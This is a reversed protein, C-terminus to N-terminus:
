DDISKADLPPFRAIGKHDGLLFTGRAPERKYNGTAPLVGSIPVCSQIRRQERAIWHCLARTWRKLFPGQGFEHGM